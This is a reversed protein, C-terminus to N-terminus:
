ANIYKERHLIAKTEDFSIPASTHEHVIQWIDQYQKLTWTLRNQMARLEVGQASIGAYTVITTVVVVDQAGITKTDDFSVNVRETNLSAFWEKITKRWAVTGSYSWVGWTDFVLVDDHYLRMFAEVDKAFVASKYTNLMHSIPKSIDSM